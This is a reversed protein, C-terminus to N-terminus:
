TTRTMCAPLELEARILLRRQPADTGKGFRMTKKEHQKEIVRQQLCKVLERRTILGACRSTIMRLHIYPLATRSFHGANSATFSARGTVSTEVPLRDVYGLAIDSDAIFAFICCTLDM